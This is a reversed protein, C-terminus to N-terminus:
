HIVKQNNFTIIHSILPTLMKRETSAETLPITGSSLHTIRKKRIAAGTNTKPEIQRRSPNPAGAYAIVSKITGQNKGKSRVFAIRFPEDGSESIMPLVHQISIDRM